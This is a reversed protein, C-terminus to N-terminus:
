RFDQHCDQCAQGIAQQAATVGACNLPPSALVEDLSARLGSSHAIFRRDDRLEVFAGDFQGAMTRLAQLHPLTDTPNCNNREVSQKLQGMQANMVQMVARPYTDPGGLWTRMLYAVVVAGIVLGLLFMFLFRSGNGGRKDADPNRTPQPDSM